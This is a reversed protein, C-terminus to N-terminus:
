QETPCAEARQRGSLSTEATRACRCEAVAQSASAPDMALPKEVLVHRGARAAQVIMPAHLCHPTCITVSDVTPDALVHAHDATWRPASYRHAFEAAREPVVDCCAVLEVGPMASLLEAHVAGIVGCGVVACRIKGTM